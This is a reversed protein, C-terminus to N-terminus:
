PDRPTLRELIPGARAPVDGYAKAVRGEAVRLVLQADRDDVSNNPGHTHRAADPGRDRLLARLGIRLAGTVM